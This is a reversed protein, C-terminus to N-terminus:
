VRHFYDTLCKEKNNDHLVSHTRTARNAVGIPPRAVCHCASFPFLGPFHLLPPPFYFPPSVDDVTLHHYLAFSGGTLGAVIVFGM